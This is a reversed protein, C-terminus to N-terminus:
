DTRQESVDVWFDCCVIGTVKGAPIVQVRIARHSGCTAKLGCRLFETYYGQTVSGSSVDAVRGYVYYVGPETVATLAGKELDLEIVGRGKGAVEDSCRRTSQAGPHLRELCVILNSPLEESPYRLVGRLTGDSTKPRTTTPLASVVRRKAKATAGPAVWLFSMSSAVVVAILVGRQLVLQHHDM